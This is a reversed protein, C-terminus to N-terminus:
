RAGLLTISGVCGVLAILIDLVFGTAFGLAAM